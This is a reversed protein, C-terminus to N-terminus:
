SMAFRYKLAEIQLELRMQEEEFEHHPVKPIISTLDDLQKELDKIIRVARDYNSDTLRSYKGGM